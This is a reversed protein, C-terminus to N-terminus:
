RRPLAERIDLPPRTKQLGPAMHTQEYLPRPPKVPRPPASISYNTLLHSASSIPTLFKDQVYFISFSSSPSVTTSPFSILAPCNYFYFRINIYIYALHWIPSTVLCLYFFHDVQFLSIRQTCGAQSIVGKPLFFLVHFTFFLIERETHTTLNSKPLDRISM